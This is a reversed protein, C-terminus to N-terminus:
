RAGPTGIFYLAWCLTIALDNRMEQGNQLRQVVSKRNKSGRPGLKKKMIKAEPNQDSPDLKQLTDFVNRLPVTPNLVM